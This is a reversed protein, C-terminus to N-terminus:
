HHLCVQVVKVAHSSYDYARLSLEPNRNASLLPFVANGAGLHTRITLVGGDLTFNHVYWMRDRSYHASRGTDTKMVFIDLRFLLGVEPEAAQVLEPFELHLRHTSDIFNFMCSHLM